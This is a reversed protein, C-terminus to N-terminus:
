QRVNSLRDLMQLGLANVRYLTKSGEDMEDMVGISVLRSMHTWFTDYGIRAKVMVWHQVTPMRCAELIALEIASQSRIPKRHRPHLFLARLKEGEANPSQLTDLISSQPPRPPAFEVRQM